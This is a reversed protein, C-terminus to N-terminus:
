VNLLGGIYDVAVRENVITSRDSEDARSSQRSAPQVPPTIEELRKETEMEIQKERMQEAQKEDEKQKDLQEDVAGFLGLIYSKSQEQNVISSKESPSPPEEDKKKSEETKLNEKLTPKIDVEQVSSDHHKPLEEKNM